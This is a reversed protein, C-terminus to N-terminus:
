CSYGGTDFTVGKGVLGLVESSQPNGEYKLVVLRPPIDSGIGVAYLLNLGQEKLQEEELVEVQLGAANGVEQAKKAFLVPDLLNAPMNVYDRAANVADAHIHAAEVAAAVEGESLVFLETFRKDEESKSKHAAYEYRGLLLGEVTEQAYEDTFPAVAVTRGKMSRAANGAAQRIKEAELQDAEGLGVLLLHTAQLRGSTRVHSVVGHKGSLEGEAFMAKLEGGLETDLDLLEPALADSKTYFVLLSDASVAELKASTHVSIKMTKM